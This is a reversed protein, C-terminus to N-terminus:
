LRARVKKEIRRVGEAVNAERLEAAGDHWGREGGASHQWRDCKQFNSDAMEKKKSLVRLSV